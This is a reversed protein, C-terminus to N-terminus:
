APKNVVVDLHQFTDITFKLVRNWDAESSVDAQIARVQTSPCSKAVKTTISPQIDVVVKAGEQLFKHVIGSDFGGGGRTIIAVRDKLRGTTTM